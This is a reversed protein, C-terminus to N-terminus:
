MNHLRKNNLFHSSQDGDITTLLDMSNDGGSM